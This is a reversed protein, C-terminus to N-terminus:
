NQKRDHEELEQALRNAIDLAAKEIVEEAMHVSIVVEDYRLSIEGALLKGKGEGIFIKQTEKPM